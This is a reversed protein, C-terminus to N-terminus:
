FNVPNACSWYIIFLGFSLECWCWCCLWGKIFGFSNGLV